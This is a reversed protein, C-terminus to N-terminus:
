HTFHCCRGTWTCSIHKWVPSDSMSCLIVIIFIALEYLLSPHSSLSFSFLFPFFFLAYSHLLFYLLLFTRDHILTWNGSTSWTSLQSKPILSAPMEGLMKWCVAHSLFFCFVWCCCQRTFCFHSSPDQITNKKIFYLKWMDQIDSIIIM